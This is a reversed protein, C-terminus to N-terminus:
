TRTGKEYAGPYRDRLLRLAHAIRGPYVRRTPTNAPEAVMRALHDAAPPAVRLEGTAFRYEAPHTLARDLHGHMEAETGPLHIWGRSALRECFAVQHDDVAEGFRASRAVVIPKVGLSRADMISGTGGHTVVATAGRMREMLQPRAVKQAGQAHRPEPSCGYQVFGATEPHRAFWTDLWTLLRAFGYHGTGLTAAVAPAEDPPADRSVVGM